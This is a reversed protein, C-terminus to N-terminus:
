PRRRGEILEALRGSGIALAWWAAGALLLLVSEVPGREAVRVLGLLGALVAAAVAAVGALCAAGSVWNLFKTIPKM